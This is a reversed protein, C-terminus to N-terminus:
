QVSVPVQAIREIGDNVIVYYIGPSVFRGLNFKINNEGTVADVTLSNMKKGLSNYLDINVRGNM